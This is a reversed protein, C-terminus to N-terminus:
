FDVSFGLTLQDRKDYQGFIGKEEGYFSDIGGSIIINSRLEYEVSLRALGDSDNLNHFWQGSITLTENYFNRDVLLTVTIDNEERTLPTDYDIIYSIFLQGSIFTDTIGNYDLGFVTELTPSSAVGSNSNISSNISNSALTYDILFFQESHLAVEGRVTYSGFANSFTGGLLHSREYRPTISLQNAQATQELAPRDLYHYLYNISVDWGNIFNTFRIGADSDSFIRDPKDTDHIAVASGSPPQPVFRPSSPAFRAQETTSPTQDYTNDPIWLFQTTWNGIPIEVNLLWTPIRRNESEELIFERLNMPNILDLVRFGDAQGWVVQQKGARVFIDGIYGDIYLERFEWDTNDSFFLRQSMTSRVQADDPENPELLDKTENHLTWSFFIKWNDGAAQSIESTLSNSFMVTDIEDSQKANQAAAEGFAIRSTLTNRFEGAKAAASFSLGLAISSSLVGLMALALNNRKM